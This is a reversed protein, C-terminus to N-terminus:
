FVLAHTKNLERLRDLTDVDAAVTWAREHMRRFIEDFLDGMLRSQTAVFTGLKDTAEQLVSAEPRDLQKALDAAGSRFRASSAIQEAVLRPVKYRDGILQREDREAVNTVTAGPHTQTAWRTIATREFRSRAKTLAIASQARTLTNPLIHTM